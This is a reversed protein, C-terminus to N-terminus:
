HVRLGEIERLLAKGDNLHERLHDVRSAEAGARRLEELETEHAAVSGRAEQYIEMARKFSLGKQREEEFRHKLSSCSM